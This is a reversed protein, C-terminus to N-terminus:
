QDDTERAARMIREIDRASYGKAELTSERTKLRFSRDPHRSAVERLALAFQTIQAVSAIFTVVALIEASERVHVRFPGPGLAESFELDFERPVQVLLDEGRFDPLLTIELPQADDM